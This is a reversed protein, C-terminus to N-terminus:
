MTSQNSKSKYKRALICEKQDMAMCPPINEFLTLDIMLQKMITKRQELTQASDVALSKYNKLGQNVKEIHAM